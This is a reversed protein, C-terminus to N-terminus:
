RLVGRKTGDFFNLLTDLEPFPKLEDRAQKIGESLRRNDKWIIRYAKKL